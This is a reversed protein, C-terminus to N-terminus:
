YMYWSPKQGASIAAASDLLMPRGSLNTKAFRNLFRVVSEREGDKLLWAPLRFTSMQHTYALTETSPAEAAALMQEVALKHKGDHMAALGLVMHDNYFATGYEPNDPFRKALDLSEQADKKVDDWYPKAAAANHERYELRDASNYQMEALQWLALSREKEPLQSVAQYREAEPLARWAPVSEANRAFVILEHARISQPDLSLARELCQKGLPLPDFDITHRRYLDHGSGTLGVAAATLVHVDNSEALKRRVEAAFAGHADALNVSRVVGMPMSANSGVLVQYYLRGLQNSWDGRPDRQQARLLLKEALPKDDATFFAAANGLVVPSADPSATKSLWLKKSQAYGVPDALPDRDPLLLEASLLGNEPQNAILWLIHRRRAAITKAAGLEAVGKEHYFRLLTTRAQLDTPNKAIEAEREEARQATMARVEAQMADRNMYQLIARGAINQPNKAVEVKLAEVQQPTMARAEARIAEAKMFMAGRLPADHLPTVAAQRQCAAALFIAAGCGLAVPLRRAFSVRRESGGNLIRDIRAEVRGSGAMGSQWLLRGGNRRSSDALDLLVEAYHRNGGAAALAADDCAHEALTALKRQLWWALPHFWFIARNCLAMANVLNDRRRVHAAEHALVARLKPEPWTPWDMPLVVRGAFVGATVPTVTRSSQYFSDGAPSCSRAFGRAAVWGLLLRMLSIALGILYAGVAFDLWSSPPSFPPKAVPPTQIRPGEAVAPTVVRTVPHAAVPQSPSLDQTYFALDPAAAVAGGLIPVPIRIVPLWRRAPAMLLMAGLVAAWAAHRLKAPSQRFVALACAVGAAALCARLSTQALINLISNM